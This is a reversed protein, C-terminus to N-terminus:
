SRFYAESKRYSNLGRRILVLGAASVPLAVLIGTFGGLEGGAMLVFIVAVPHLGIRDGILNPTLILSELTQGLIFVSALLGLFWWDFSSQAFAIGVAALIGLLSGAYPIISILGIFVGAIFAYNLGIFWLGFSYYVAQCIMIIMQGRLFAGLVEHVEIAVESISQQRAEPILRQIALVIRDWDRLLYFGVIPVLTLNIVALLFSLGSATIRQFSNALFGGMSKWHDQLQTEWNISPLTIPSLSFQNQLWPLGVEALWAYGIPVTTMLSVLQELLVPIVLALLLALFSLTLAFVVIVGVMRSAGKEELKDVAPDGLYALLAGAVFPTLIPQLAWFFLFIGALILALWLALILTELRNM